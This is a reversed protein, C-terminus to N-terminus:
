QHGVTMSYKEILFYIFACFCPLPLANGLTLSSTLLQAQVCAWAAAELSITGHLGLPQM